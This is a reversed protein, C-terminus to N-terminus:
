DHDVELELKIEAVRRPMAVRMREYVALLALADKARFIIAADDLGGRADRSVQRVYACPMESPQAAAISERLAALPNPHAMVKVQVCLPWCGKLDRGRVADQSEEGAARRQCDPYVRSLLDAAEREGRCGKRRSMAGM